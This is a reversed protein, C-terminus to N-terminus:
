VGLYKPSYYINCTLFDIGEDANYRFLNDGKKLQLFDSEFDLLHLIKTEVGNLNSTIYKKGVNTNITIKEGRAM